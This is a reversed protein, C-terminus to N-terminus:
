KKWLSYQQVLPSAWPFFFLSHKESSFFFFLFVCKQGHTYNSFVPATLETFTIPIFSTYFIYTISTKSQRCFLPSYECSKLFLYPCVIETWEEIEAISVFLLIWKKCKEKGEWHMDLQYKYFISVARGLVNASEHKLHDKGFTFPIHEFQWVLLPIEAWAKWAKIVINSETM